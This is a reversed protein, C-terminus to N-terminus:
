TLGPGCSEKQGSPSQKMLSAIARAHEGGERELAKVVRERRELSHNQSLKWKGELGSVSIRFGVVGKMMKDAYPSAFDMSWPKARSSEYTAITANLIRTLEAHDEVIKIAGYAHVAVYNWTPVVDRAEYWSPSVYAHPGSFVVLAEGGLERWQPNARAMHGLLAGQPGATRDVLFPIHTAQCHSEHHTIMVAFSNAEMFDFLKTRDTESYISPVYM